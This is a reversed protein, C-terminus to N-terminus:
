PHRPILPSRYLEMSIIKIFVQATESKILRLLVWTTVL